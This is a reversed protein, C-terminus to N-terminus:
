RRQTIEAVNPVSQRHSENSGNGGADDWIARQPVRADAHLLRPGLAFLLYTIDKTSPKAPLMAPTIRSM